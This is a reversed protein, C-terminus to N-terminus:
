PCCLIHHGDCGSLLPDMKTKGDEAWWRRVTQLLLICCQFLLMAILLKWIRGLEIRSALFNSERRFDTEERGVLMKCDAIVFDLM